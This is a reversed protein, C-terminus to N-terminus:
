VYWICIVEMAPRSMGIAGSIKKSSHSRLPGNHFMAKGFTQQIKENGLYLVVGNKTNQEEPMQKLESWTNIAQQREVIWM